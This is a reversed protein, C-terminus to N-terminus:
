IDSAMAYPVKEINTALVLCISAVYITISEYMLIRVNVRKNVNLSIGLFQGILYHLGMKPAHTNTYVGVGEAHM